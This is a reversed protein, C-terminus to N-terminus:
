RYTELCSKEDSKILFWTKDRALSEDQHKAWSKFSRDYFIYMITFNPENNPESDTQTGKDSFREFIQLTTSLASHEEKLKFIWGLGIHANENNKHWCLFKLHLVELSEKLLKNKLCMGKEFVCYDCRAIEEMPGRLRMPPGDLDFDWKQISALTNHTIHGPCWDVYKGWVWLEFVTRLTQSEILPVSVGSCM